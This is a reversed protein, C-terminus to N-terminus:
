FSRVHITDLRQARPRTVIFVHVNGIDDVSQGEYRGMVEALLGRESWLEFAAQAHEPDWAFDSAGAGAGVATGQVVTTVRIDDDRVE